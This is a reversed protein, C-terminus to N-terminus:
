LATFALLIPMPKGVVVQEVQKRAANFTAQAESIEM